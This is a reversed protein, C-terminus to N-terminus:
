LYMTKNVLKLIFWNPLGLKRRKCASFLHKKLLLLLVKKKKEKKLAAWCGLHSVKASRGTARTVRSAPAATAGSWTSACPTRTATTSGASVSTTSQPPSLFCGVSALTLLGSATLFRKLEMWCRWINTRSRFTFFRSKSSANLTNNSSGRVILSPVSFLRSQPLWYSTLFCSAPPAVVDLMTQGSIRRWIHAKWEQQNSPNSSPALVLICNASNCILAATEGAHVGLLDPAASSETGDLLYHFNAVLIGKILRVSVVPRSLSSGPLM